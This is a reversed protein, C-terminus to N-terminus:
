GRVAMLEERTMPDEIWYAPVHNLLGCLDYAAKRKLRMGNKPVLYPRNNCYIAYTVHEDNYSHAVVHYPGEPRAM